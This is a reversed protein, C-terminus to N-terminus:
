TSPVWGVPLREARADPAVRELHLESRDQDPRRELVFADLRQEVGDHIVQRRRRVHDRNDADIGLGALLDLACGVVRQRERSEGELDHGIGVDTAEGVEADVRPRESGSRM